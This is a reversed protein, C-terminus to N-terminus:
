VHEGGVLMFRGHATRGDDNLSLSFQAPLIATNLNCIGVYRHIWFAIFQSNFHRTQLYCNPQHKSPWGGM